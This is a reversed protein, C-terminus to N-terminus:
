DGYCGTLAEGGLIFKAANQFAAGGGNQLHGQSTDAANPFGFFDGAHGFGVIRLNRGMEIGAGDFSCGVDM